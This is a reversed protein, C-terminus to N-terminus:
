RTYGTVPKDLAIPYSLAGLEKKWFYFNDATYVHALPWAGTVSTESILDFNKKGKMMDDFVFILHRMHEQLFAMDRTYPSTMQSLRRITERDKIVQNQFVTQVKKRISWM